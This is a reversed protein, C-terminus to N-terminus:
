GQFAHLAEIRWRDKAPEYALHLYAGPPLFFALGAEPGPMGLCALALAEVVSSPGLLALDEGAPLWRALAQTWPGLWGWFAVKGPGDAQPPEPAAVALREWPCGYRAALARAWGQAEEVALVRAPRVGVRDLYRAWADLVANGDAPTAPPVAFFVHQRADQM